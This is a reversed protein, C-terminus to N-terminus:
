QGIKAKAITENRTTATNKVMLDELAVQKIRNVFKHKTKPDYFTVGACDLPTVVGTQSNGNTFKMNGGSRIQGPALKTVFTTTIVSDCVTIAKLTGTVVVPKRNINRLYVSFGQGLTLSYKHMGVCVYVGSVIEYPQKKWPSNRQSYGAQALTLTLILVCLTNTLLPNM